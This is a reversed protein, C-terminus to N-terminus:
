GELSLIEICPKCVDNMNQRSVGEKRKIVSRIRKQNWGRKSYSVYYECRIAKTRAASLQNTTFLSLQKMLMVFAEERTLLEPCESLTMKCIEKKIEKRSQM